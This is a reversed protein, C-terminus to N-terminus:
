IHPQVVTCQFHNSITYCRLTVSVYRIYIATFWGSPTHSCMAMLISSVAFWSCPLLMEFSSFVRTTVPLM